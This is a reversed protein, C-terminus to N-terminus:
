MRIACCVACIKNQDKKPSVSNSSLTDLKLGIQILVKTKAM